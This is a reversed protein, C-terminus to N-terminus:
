LSTYWTGAEPRRACVQHLTFMLSLPASSLTVWIDDSLVRSFFNEPLQCTRRHLPFQAEVSRLWFYNDFPSNSLGGPRSSVTSHHAALWLPNSYLTHMQVSGSIPHHLTCTRRYGRALGMVSLHLRPLLSLIKNGGATQLYKKEHREKYCRRRATKAPSCHFTMTQPQIFYSAAHLDSSQNSLHQGAVDILLIFDRDPVGNLGPTIM